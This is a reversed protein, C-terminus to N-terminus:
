HDNCGETSRCSFFLSFVRIRLFLRAALTLLSCENLAHLFFPMFQGVIIIFNAFPKLAMRASGFKSFIFFPIM